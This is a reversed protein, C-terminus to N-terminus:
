VHPLPRGAQSGSIGDRRVKIGTLLSDAIARAREAVLTIGEPSPALDNLTAYFLELWRAFHMEELSPIAMHKLMPNGSFEGSNFLISRWFAKMRKLHEPWDAIRAAFIPALLDDERIRAYFREVMLSIFKEDVGCAEANTRKATRAAHVHERSNEITGLM